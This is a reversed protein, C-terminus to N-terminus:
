ILKGGGSKIKPTPKKPKTFENIEEFNNKIDNLISTFEYNESEENKKMLYGIVNKLDKDNLTARVNISKKMIKFAIYQTNLKKEPSLSFYNNISVNSLVNDTVQNLFSSFSPHKANIGMNM